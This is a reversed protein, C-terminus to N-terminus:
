AKDPKFIGGNKIANTFIAILRDNPNRYQNGFKMSAQDEGPTLIDRNIGEYRGIPLLSQATEFANEMLAIQKASFLKMLYKDISCDEDFKTAEDVGNVFDNKKFKNELKIRSILLAGRACVMCQSSTAGRMSKKILDQMQIDGLSDRMLSDLRDQGFFVRGVRGFYKGEALQKLADKLVAVRREAKTKTTKM